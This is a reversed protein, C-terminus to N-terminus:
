QDVVHPREVLSSNITVYGNAEGLTFLGATADLQEAVRWIFAKVDKRCREAFRINIFSELPTKIQHFLSGSSDDEIPADIVEEIEAHAIGNRFDIMDNISLFPRQSYDPTPLGVEKWVLAAKEKLSAKRKKGNNTILTMKRWRENQNLYAELAFCSHVISSMILLDSGEEDNKASKLFFKAGSYLISYWYLTKNGRGTMSM